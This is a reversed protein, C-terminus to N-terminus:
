LLRAEDGAGGQGDVAAAAGSPLGRASRRQAIQLVILAVVVLAAGIIQKGSLIEGLLLYAFSVAWIPSSNDIIATRLPGIMQVATFLSITAAAFFLCSGIFALWGVSGQPWTLDAVTVSLVVMVVGAMVTMHLMVVRKDQAAMVREGVLLLGVMGLAAGFALGVGRWDLGGLPAGLALVIGGFAAMMAVLSVATPKETGRIWSWAAILLPYCYMVVIALGVPILIIAGLLSYMEAVLLLGLGLSALRARPPLGMPRGAMRLWLALCILLVLTRSLNLAHINGGADYAMRSLTVNMAFGTASALAILSGLLRRRDM